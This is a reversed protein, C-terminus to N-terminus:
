TALGAGNHGAGRIALPLDQDRALAIVKAIDELTAPRAIIGPRKDIMANYVARAEDYDVDQTGILRGHFGALAPSTTTLM